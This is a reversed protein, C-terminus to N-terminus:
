TNSGSAVGLDRLMMAAATRNNVKLKSMVRTMHHKITKEHLDLEIAVHKNSMGCAVLELIERERDTLTALPQRSIGASSLTKLDALMRAALTPAVYTEGSAVFLLIDALSRAGVGKLVYGKAGCNIARAADETSESVTLMVVKQSPNASLIRLLAELGGGPMSVDLLLIDPRQGALAVADEGTSGEGAIEFGMGSLSRIVGERFLPHDDVVALTNTMM